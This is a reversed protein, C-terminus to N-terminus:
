AISRRAHAMPPNNASYGAYKTYRMEYDGVFIRRVEREEFGELRQGLRPYPMLKEPAATLSQVMKGAARPNVIALFDRLRGIDGLAADSWQLQM